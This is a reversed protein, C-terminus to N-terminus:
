NSGRKYYAYGKSDSAFLDPVKALIPYEYNQLIYDEDHITDDAIAMIVIIVFSILIGLVGGMATYKTISPAVKELNVVASDVVKMSSGEIIESIRKPLVEAICNAIKASDYPDESTVTVRFVETGNVSEASIM